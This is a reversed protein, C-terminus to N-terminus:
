NNSTDSELEKTIKISEIIEKNTLDYIWGLSRGAGKGEPLNKLMSYIIEGMSYDFENIMTNLYDLILKNNKNGKDM